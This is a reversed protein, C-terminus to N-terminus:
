KWGNSLGNWSRVGVAYIVLVDEHKSDITDEWSASLDLVSTALATYYQQSPDSVEDVLGVSFISVIFIGLIFGIAVGRSGSAAVWFYEISILLMEMKGLTTIGEVNHLRAPVEM